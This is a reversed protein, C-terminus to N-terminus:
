VGICPGDTQTASPSPRTSRHMWRSRGCNVWETNKWVISERTQCGTALLSDRHGSCSTKGQKMESLREQAEQAILGREAERVDPATIARAKLYGGVLRGLLEGRSDLRIWAPEGTLLRVLSKESARACVLSPFYSFFFEFWAWMGEVFPFKSHM